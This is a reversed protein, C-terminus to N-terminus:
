DTCHHRNCLSRSDVRTLGKSHLPTAVDYLIFNTCQGNIPPSNCRTCRPPSQAPGKRATGFTIAWGDVALTGIVTNSYLPGNSQPKFTSMLHNIRTWIYSSTTTLSHRNCIVTYHHHHHHHRRHAVTWTFTGATCWVTLEDRSVDSVNTPLLRATLSSRKTFIRQSDSSKSRIIQM